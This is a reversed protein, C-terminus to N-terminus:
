HRGEDNWGYDHDDWTALVRMNQKLHQFEPKINLSDYKNQLEAMDRTDGYINDGLYVFIDPRHKVVLDLIPQPRSEEACSGFAIKHIRPFNNQAPVYIYALLAITSVICKM